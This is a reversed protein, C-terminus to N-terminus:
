YFEMDRIKNIIEINDLDNLGNRLEVANNLLIDIVKQNSKNPKPHVLSILDQMKFNENKSYKLLQYNDFKNFARSFAKKVSNPIKQDNDCLMSVIDLMDNPTKVLSYFFDKAWKKGIISDIVEIAIYFSVIRLNYKARIYLATKAAFLPDVNRVCEKLNSLFEKGSTYNYDKFFINTLLILLKIQAETQKEDILSNNTLKKSM